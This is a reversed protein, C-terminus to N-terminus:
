HNYGALAFDDAYSDFRCLLRTLFNRKNILLVEKFTVPEETDKADWFTIAHSDVVDSYYFDPDTDGTFFMDTEADLTFFADEDRELEIQLRLAEALAQVQPSNEIWECLADILDQEQVPHYNPISKTANIM